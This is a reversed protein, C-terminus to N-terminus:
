FRYDFYCTSIRVSPFCSSNYYTHLLVLLPNCFCVM